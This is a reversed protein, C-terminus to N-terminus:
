KRKEGAKSEGDGGRHGGYSHQVALLKLSMGRQRVGRVTWFSEGMKGGTRVRSRIKKIVEEVRRVLGERIKKTRMTEMLVRKDESDFATKLDVFLAVLKGGTREIQRNIVWERWSDRRRGHFLEM